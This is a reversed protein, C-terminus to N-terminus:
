LELFQRLATLDNIVIVDPYDEIPQHGRNLLVANMGAKRAPLADTDARDGVYYSQAPQINALKCASTFIATDPKAVQVEESIVVVSFRSEIGLVRLKNRQNQTTGNSIIGLTLGHLSNLCPLVDPFLSWTSEYAKLYERVLLRIDHDSVKKSFVAHMRRQWHTDYDIEGNLYMRNSERATRFWLHLFRDVDDVALAGRHNRFFATAAYRTSLSHDFLTDDIDFFVVM